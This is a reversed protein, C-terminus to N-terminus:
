YMRPRDGRDTTVAALTVSFNSDSILGQKRDREILLSFCLCATLYLACHPATANIQHRILEILSHDTHTFWCQDMHTINKPCNQYNHFLKLHM